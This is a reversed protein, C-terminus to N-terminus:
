RVVTVQDCFLLINGHYVHILIKLFTILRVGVPIFVHSMWLRSLSVAAIHTLPRIIVGVTCTVCWRRWWLFVCTYRSLVAASASTLLRSKLPTVTATSVWGDADAWLTLPGPESGTRQQQLLAGAAATAAAAACSVFGARVDDFWQAESGLCRKQLEIYHYGSVDIAFSRLELRAAVIAAAATNACWHTTVLHFSCYMWVRRSIDHSFIM